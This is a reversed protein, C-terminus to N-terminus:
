AGAEGSGGGGCVGPLKLTPRQGGVRNDSFESARDSNTYVPLGGAEDRDAVDARVLWQDGRFLGTRKPWRSRVGVRAGIAFAYRLAPDRAHAAPAEVPDRDKAAALERVDELVVDVV